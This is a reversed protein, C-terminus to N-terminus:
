GTSSTRPPAGGRYERLHGGCRRAGSTMLRRCPRRAPAQERAHLAQDAHFGYARRGKGYDILGHPVAEVASLALSGTVVLVGGANILAHASLM